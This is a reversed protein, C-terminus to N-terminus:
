GTATYAASDGTVTDPFRRKLESRFWRVDAASFPRDGLTVTFYFDLAGGRKMVASLELGSDVTTRERLLSDLARCVPEFDTVIRSKRAGAEAAENRM